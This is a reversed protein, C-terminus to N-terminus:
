YLLDAIIGNSLLFGKENLRLGESDSLMLGAKVYKEAKKYLTDPINKQFRELFEKQNLGKKLRLSLMIYEEEDGGKGDSVPPKGKLFSKFDRDFYFREGNLFSHASPGVGLYEGCQWYSLNHRSEYGELAFNSIEYQCFGRKELEGVAYLYFDCVEDEDPLAPPNKYFPTGEELKLMYASVHKAGSECIFDLSKQLSQKTQGPIGLMLDLSINGIGYRNFLDIAEKAKQASASRELKKRESDVASQLGMSIRNVGALSLAKVLEEDVSSPNCEVTIEAEALLSYNKKIFELVEAIRKGGFVSPTGGGFYVTSIVDSIKSKYGELCSLVAKLYSDKQNEEAKFSYFDCYPCKSACFPTHIYIGTM